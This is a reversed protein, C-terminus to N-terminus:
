RAAVMPNKDKDAGPEFLNASDHGSGEEGDRGGGEQNTGTENLETRRNPIETPNHPPPTEPHHGSELMEEQGLVHRGKEKGLLFGISFMPMTSKFNGHLHLPCPCMNFPYFSPHELVQTVGLKSFTVLHM